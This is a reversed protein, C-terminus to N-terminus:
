EKTFVTNIPVQGLTEVSDMTCLNYNCGDTEQHNQFNFGEVVVNADKEETGPPAQGPYNYKYSDNPTQLLSEM